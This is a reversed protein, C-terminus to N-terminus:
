ESNNNLNIGTAGKDVGNVQHHIEQQMILTDVKSPIFSQKYQKEFEKILSKLNEPLIINLDFIMEKFKGGVDEGQAFAWKALEEIEIYKQADHGNISQVGEESANESTFKSRFNRLEEELSNNKSNLDSNQKELMNVQVLLRDVRGKLELVEKDDNKAQCDMCDTICTASPNLNEISEIAITASVDNEAGSIETRLKDYFEKNAKM